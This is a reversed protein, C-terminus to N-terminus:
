RTNRSCFWRGGPAPASGHRPSNCWHLCPESGQRRRAFWPGKCTLLSADRQRNGKDGTEYAQERASARRAYHNATQLITDCASPVTGPRVGECQPPSRACPLRKRSKLEVLSVHSTSKDCALNEAIDAWNEFSMRCTKRHSVNHLRGGRHTGVANGAGCSTSESFPCSSGAGCVKPRLALWRFPRAVGIDVTIGLGFKEVTQPV